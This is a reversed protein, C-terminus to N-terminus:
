WLSRVHSPHCQRRIALSTPRRPPTPGILAVTGAVTDCLLLHVSPVTQASRDVPTQDCFRGRLWLKGGFIWRTGNHRWHRDNLKQKRATFSDEAVHVYTENAPRTRATEEIACCLTAYENVWLQWVAPTFTFATWVRNGLTPNRLQDRNKATLRCTIHTM